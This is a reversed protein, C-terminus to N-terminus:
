SNAVCLDFTNLSIGGRPDIQVQLLGFGRDYQTTTDLSSSSCGDGTHAHIVAPFQLFLPDYEITTCPVPPSASPGRVQMINGVIDYEFHIVNAWGQTSATPPPPAVPQSPDEHFRSLPASGKIFKQVDNVTELPLTLLALKAIWVRQLSHRPCKPRVSGSSM